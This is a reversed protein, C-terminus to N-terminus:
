FHKIKGSPARRSRRSRRASLGFQSQALDLALAHDACTRLPKAFLDHEFSLRLAIVM